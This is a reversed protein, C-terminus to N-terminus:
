PQDQSPQRQQQRIHKLNDVTGQTLNVAYSETNDEYQICYYRNGHEEMEYIHSIGKERTQRLISQEFKAKGKSCTLPRGESSYETKTRSM